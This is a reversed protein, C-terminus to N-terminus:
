IKSIVPQVNMPITEIGLTTLPQTYENNPQQCDNSVNIHTSWHQPSSVLSDISLLPSPLLFLVAPSWTDAGWGIPLCWWCCCCCICLCVPGVGAQQLYTSVCSSHFACISYQTFLIKYINNPHFNIKIGCMFNFSSSSLLIHLWWKLQRQAQYQKSGQKKHCTIVDSHHRSSRPSAPWHWTMLDATVANSPMHRNCCGIIEQWWVALM